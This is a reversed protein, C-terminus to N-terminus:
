FRLMNLWTQLMFQLSPLGRLRLGHNILSVAFLMLIIRWLFSNTIFLFIVIGIIIFFLGVSRHASYYM